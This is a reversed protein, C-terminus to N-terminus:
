IYLTVRKEISKGDEARAALQVIVRGAHNVRLPLSQQKIQGSSYEGSFGFDDLEMVDLEAGGSTLLKLRVQDLMTGRGKNHVALLFRADPRDAQLRVHQASVSVRLAATRYINWISLGSGTAGLILSLWLRLELYPAQADM